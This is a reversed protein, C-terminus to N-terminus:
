MSRLSIFVCIEIQVKEKYKKLRDRQRKLELVAKDKEQLDYGAM